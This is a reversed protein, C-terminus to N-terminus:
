SLSVSTLYSRATGQGTEGLESTPHAAPPSPYQRDPTMHPLLIDQSALTGATARSRVTTTVNAETWSVVRAGRGGIM